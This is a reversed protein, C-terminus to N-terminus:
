MVLYAVITIRVVFREICICSFPSSDNFTTLWEHDRGDGLWM